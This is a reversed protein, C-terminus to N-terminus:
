EEPFDSDSLDVFELLDGPQCSLLQCVKDLTAWSMLQGSRIKHLMSEGMIHEQRIRTSNYGAAKLAGIIDVKYKIAM